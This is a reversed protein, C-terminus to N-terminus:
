HSRGTLLPRFVVYGLYLNPRAVLATGGTAPQARIDPPNTMRTKSLKNESGITLIEETTSCYAASQLAECAMQCGQSVCM